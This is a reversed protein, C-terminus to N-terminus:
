EASQPRALDAPKPTRLDAFEETAPKPKPAMKAELETAPKPRKMRSRRKKNGM